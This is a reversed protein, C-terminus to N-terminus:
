SLYCSSLAEPKLAMGNLRPPRDIRVQSSSHLAKSRGSFGGTV